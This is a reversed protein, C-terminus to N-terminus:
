RASAPLLRRGLHTDARAWRLSPGAPPCGLLPGFVPLGSHASGGRIKGGDDCPGAEADREDEARDGLAGVEARHAGDRVDHVHAAPAAHAHPHERHRDRDRPSGRQLERAEDVKRLGDVRPGAKGPEGQQEAPEQEADAHREARAAPVLRQHADARAVELRDHDEREEPDGGVHRQLAEEPDPAHGPEIRHRDVERAQPRAPCSRGDSADAAKPM